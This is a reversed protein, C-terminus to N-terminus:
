PVYQGLMDLQDAHAQVYAAMQDSAMAAFLEKAAAEDLNVISQTGDPSWGTGAVPATLYVVGSTGTARVDLALDVMEQLSLNDDVSVATSATSVLGVIKTPDKRAETVADSSAMARLWNQQRKMRDLDGRPLNYRERAYALAQDGDLLQGDIEVGGMQDTLQAFSDFDAVAFHDIRVGTLSELTQIMLPPGGFSYAANVKAYGNGPIEVWSDRPISVVYAGKRDGPIHLLMIADTRQAGYEWQTPDGASIRSDSGLILVNTPAKASVKAPAQPRDPLDAFPDGITHL